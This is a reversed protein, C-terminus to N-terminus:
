PISNWNKPEEYFPIDTAQVGAAILRSRREFLKSPHL